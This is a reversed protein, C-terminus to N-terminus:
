RILLPEGFEIKDLTKPMFPPHGLLRSYFHELDVNRRLAELEELPVWRAALIENSDETCVPLEQDVEYFFYHGIALKRYHLSEAAPLEVGTEEKLERLACAIGTEGRRWHGKPFSWIGTKRGQVLLISGASSLIVVGFVSFAPPKYSRFARVEQIPRLM